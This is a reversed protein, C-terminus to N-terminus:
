HGARDARGAPGGPRGDLGFCHGFRRRCAFVIGGPSWGLKGPHSSPCITETAVSLIVTRSDDAHLFIEEPMPSSPRPLPCASWVAPDATPSFLTGHLRSRAPQPPRPLDGHKLSPSRLVINPDIWAQFYDPIIRSTVFQPLQEPDYDFVIQTATSSPPPPLPAPRPLCTAPQIRVRDIAAHLFLPRAGFLGLIM